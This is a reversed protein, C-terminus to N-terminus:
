RFVRILRSATYHSLQSFSPSLSTFLWHALPLRQHPAGARNESSVWITVMLRYIFFSSQAAPSM